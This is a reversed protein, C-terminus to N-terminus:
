ARTRWINELGLGLFCPGCVTETFAIGARGQNFEILVPNDDQDLTIDWGILGSIPTSDHQDLCFQLLHDFRPIIAGEFAHNSDPHAKLTRWDATVGTSWLAGSPQDIPVRISDESRVLDAGARALRLYCARAEAPNGPMKVTTIRITAVSDPTFSDFWQNQRIPAQVVLDGLREISQLNFAGAAVRSVGLGRLSSDTKVFVHGRTDFLIGSVADRSIPKYHSDLWFGRIFYALDTVPPNVLIRRTFTKRDYGPFPTWSPIMIAHHYSRPIWGELFEGRWAAYVFLGPAHLDSGLVDAAYTRIRRMEVSSLAAEPQLAVIRQYDNRAMTNARAVRSALRQRARYSKTVKRLPWKLISIM